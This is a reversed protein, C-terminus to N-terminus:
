MDIEKVQDINAYVEAQSAVMEKKANLLGKWPIMQTVGIKFRQAGLRTEVPLVGLGVSVTPDPYDAVQAAKEKASAYQLRMAELGPNHDLAMEIFSEVSQATGTTVVWFPFIFIFWKYM